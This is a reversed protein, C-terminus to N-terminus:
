PTSVASSGLYPIALRIGTGTARLGARTLAAAHGDVFACSAVGRHLLSVASSNDSTSAPYFNANPMGDYSTGAGLPTQTDAYLVFNSPQKFRGLRFFIWASGQEVLFDGQSAVNSSYYTDGRGRYMGYTQWRSKFKGALVSSPCVFSNKNSIYLPQKFSAGGALTDPWLDYGPDAYGVYWLMENNDGAYLLQGKLVQSIAGTCQIRKATDRAGKLSPLLMASLIAIIAIVVLLEILTFRSKGM